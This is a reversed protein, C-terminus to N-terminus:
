IEFMFFTIDRMFMYKSPFDLSVRQVHWVDYYHVTNHLNERIWKQIQPHRDTILTAIDLEKGQLFAVGRILGEKEM